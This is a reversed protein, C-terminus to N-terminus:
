FETRWATRGIEGLRALADPLSPALVRAALREGLTRATAKAINM